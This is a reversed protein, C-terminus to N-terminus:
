TIVHGQLRAAPNCPFSGEGHICGVVEASEPERCETAVHDSNCYPSWFPGLMNCRSWSTLIVLQFTRNGSAWARPLSRMATRRSPYRPAGAGQWAPPLNFLTEVKSELNAPNSPPKSPTDIVFTRAVHTFEVQISLPTYHVAPCASPFSTPLGQCSGAAALASQLLRAGGFLRVLLM